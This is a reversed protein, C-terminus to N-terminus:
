NTRRFPRLKQQQTVTQPTIVKFGAAVLMNEKSQTTACGAAVALLAIIASLITFSTLTQKM